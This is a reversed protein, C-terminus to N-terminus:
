AQEIHRTFLATDFLPASSATQVLKQRITQLRGPDRALAVAMDEYDKLTPAVLEPLNVAMLLSQAVRGAFARGACTLVPLGVWVADTATPPANDPLTGLFLDAARQRALHEATPIRKAFILRAVDGGRAAAEKRLNAVAAVNDEFLWLVSDPVRTLIRMWVDFI